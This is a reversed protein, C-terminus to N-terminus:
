EPWEKLNLSKKLSVNVLSKPYHGTLRQAVSEATRRQLTRQSDESYYAAHPTIIVNDMKLLPNDTRIPEPDTVDLGAGAIEGNKLAWILDPENVVPGRGMNLFFANKKMKCFVERNFMGKTGAMDPVHSSLVDSRTHLEEFSVMKVGFRDAADQSVYPDCALIEMGYPKMKEAVLQAIKGFSNLGLTLGRLNHIKKSVKYDWHGGKVTQNLLSIKRTLDLIVAVTHTSVEDVCYGPVNAVCIGNETAAEIDIRDVGIAYKSIIQCKSMSEIVRRSLNAYQMIVADCDQVAEIVEDEEKVQHAIVDAGVANLIAVEQDINEFERDTLVVKWKSM